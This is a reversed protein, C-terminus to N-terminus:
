DKGHGLAKLEDKIREIRERLSEAKRNHKRQIAADLEATYWELEKKLQAVYRRQERERALAIDCAIEPEFYDSGVYCGQVSETTEDDIYSPVLLPNIFNSM